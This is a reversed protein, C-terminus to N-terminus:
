GGREAQAMRAAISTGLAEASTGTPFVTDLRGTPDVLYIASSHQISYDGDVGTAGRVVRIHLLAEFEAISTLSGNIGIMRDDFLRVYQALAAATDRGPDVTIFLTSIKDAESGLDDLVTSISQLVTPCVDPCYAYGFYLLMWRGRYSAATVRRDQSDVLDFQVQIGLASTNAPTSASTNESPWLRHVGWLAALAAVM